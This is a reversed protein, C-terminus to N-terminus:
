CLSPLMFNCNLKAKLCFLRNFSNTKSEPRRCPQSHSRLYVAQMLTLENMLLNVCFRTFYSSLDIKVSIYSKRPSYNTHSQTVMLTNRSEM